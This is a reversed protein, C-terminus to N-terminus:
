PRVGSRIGPPRQSLELIASRKHAELVALMNAANGRRNWLGVALAHCDMAFTWFWERERRSGFRHLDEHHWFCLPVAHRDTAKLGGGRERAASESRLHHAVINDREYCVSCPLMRIHVLHQPSMGPRRDRARLPRPVDLKLYRPRRFNALLVERPCEAPWDRKDSM